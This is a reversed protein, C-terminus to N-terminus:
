YQVGRKRSPPAINSRVGEVKLPLNSVLINRHTRALEYFPGQHLTKADNLERLSMIMFQRDPKSWRPWFEQEKLRLEPHDNYVLGFWLEGWFEIMIVRRGLYFPLDQFHNQYSYVTDTERLLPKLTLALTKISRTDTPPYSFNISILTLSSLLSLCLLSSLLTNRWYLLMPLTATLALLSLTTAVSFQSLDFQTAGTALLGLSLILMVAFGVRSGWHPQHDLAWDLYPGLIMALPPYIPLVYPVLQSNSKWFFLFILGAWLLLFLNTHARTIAQSSATALLPRPGSLRTWSSLIAPIIFGTWPFLGGLLVAPLFWLPQNRAQSDTFYRLFQQDVFYYHLFESHQLQVLIHWPLTIATFLALGTPLCYTKIERWQRTFLLWTFIIMCPFIMGILGKTLTALAAFCYMGWMFRNRTPGAPYQHGILFCSFSGTLLATLTMDLTVMHSMGMFLGFTGLTMSAMLAARRTYLRRTSGYAMLVTLLGMLANPARVAWENLGFAHYSVTQMWYFFPPKEFYKIGNVRPTVYDGSTVMERPIEAYRGEDPVTLPRNGLFAGFLIMFALSLLLIDQWWSHNSSPDIIGASAPEGLPRLTSVM